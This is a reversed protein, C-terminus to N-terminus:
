LCGALNMGHLRCLRDLWEFSTDAPASHTADVPIGTIVFPTGSDEYGKALASIREPPLDYSITPVVGFNESTALISEVDDNDSM